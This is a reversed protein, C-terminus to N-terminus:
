LQIRDAWNPPVLAIPSHLFQVFNISMDQPGCLLSREVQRPNTPLPARVQTDMRELYQNVSFPVNERGGYRNRVMRTAEEAELTYAQARQEDRQAATLGEKSPRKAGEAPASFLLFELMCFLRRPEYGSADTTVRFYLEVLDQADAALARLIQPQSQRLPAPCQGLAGTHDDDAEWLVETAELVSLRVGLRQLMERVDAMRVLSDGHNDLSRHVRLFDRPKLGDPAGEPLHLPAPHSEWAKLAASPVIKTRKRVAAKRPDFRAGFDMEAFDPDATAVVLADQKGSQQTLYEQLLLSSNPTSQLLAEPVWSRDVPDGERDVKGAGMEWRVLYLEQGELDGSGPRSQLIM